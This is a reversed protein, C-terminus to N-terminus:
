ESTAPLDVGPLIPWVVGILDDPIRQLTLKMDFINSSGILEISQINYKGSAIGRIASVTIEDGVELKPNYPGQVIRLDRKAYLKRLKRMAKERLLTKNYIYPTQWQTWRLKNATPEMVLVWDEGGWAVMASAWEQDASAQQYMSFYTGTLTGADDRQELHTIEISNSKECLYADRGSLLGALVNRASDQMAWVVSETPECLETAEILTIDNDCAITGVRFSDQEPLDIACIFANNVWLAVSNGYARIKFSGTSSISIPYSSLTRSDSVNTLSIETTTAYLKYGGKPLGDGDLKSTWLYLSLTTDYEGTIIWGHGYLDPFIRTGSNTDSVLDPTSCVVGSVTSIYKCVDFVSMARDDQFVSFFDVEFRRDNCLVLSESPHSSRATGIGRILSGADGSGFQTSTKESYYIVETNIKINGSGSFGSTDGVLAKHTVDKQLSETLQTSPIVCGVGAYWRSPEPSTWSSITAAVEWSGGDPKIYVILTNRIYRICIDYWKGAVAGGTISATSLETAEGAIIQKVKITNDSNLEVRFYDQLGEYWFIVYASSGTFDETIRVRTLLQFQGQYELGVTALAISSDNHIQCYGVGMNSDHSWTGAREYIGGETFNAYEHIPGEITMDFPTTFSILKKLPGRAVAQLERGKSTLIVNPTDFSMTSIDVFTTEGSYSVSYTIENGYALLDHDFSDTVLMPLKTDTAQDIDQRINVDTISSAITSSVVGSTGGLWSVANGVYSVSSGIIYATKDIRHLKGRSAVKGIFGEEPIAWNYGDDTWLLHYYSVEYEGSGGAFRSWATAIFRNDVKTLKCIRTQVSGFETDFAFIPWPDYIVGSTNGITAYQTGNINFTILRYTSDITEADFWHCNLYHQKTRSIVTSTWTSGNFYRLTTQYSTPSYSLVYGETGSIPAIANGPNTLSPTNSYEFTSGFGSGVTYNKYMMKGDTNRIFFLRAVNVDQRGLAIGSYPQPVNTFSLGSSTLLDSTGTIYKYAVDNTRGTIGLAPFSTARLIYGNDLTLSDSAVAFGGHQYRTSLDRERAEKIIAPKDGWTEGFDVVGSTPDSMVYNTEGSRWTFQPYRDKVTFSFVHKSTYPNSSWSSIDRM